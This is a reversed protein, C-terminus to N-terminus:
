VVGVMFLRVGCAVGGRVWVLWAVAGAWGIDIAVVSRVYVLDGVFITLYGGNPMIPHRLLVLFVLGFHLRM